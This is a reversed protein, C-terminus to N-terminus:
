LRYPYKHVTIADLAVQMAGILSAESGLSAKCISVPRFPYSDLVKRMLPQLLKTDADDIECIAGGIVVIEPNLVFMADAIALALHDIIEGQRAGDNRMADVSAVSELYGIKRNDRTLGKRETVFYGIEGAAGHSGRYLNGDIIIGAGIGRSINVFLMNKAGRGAGQKLEALAALNSINEVFVPVKFKASVKGYFDSSAISDYLSADVVAGTEPNVVAPVGIGIALVTAGPKAFKRRFTRMSQMIASGLQDSFDAGPEFPSAVYTAYLKGGFDSIAIKVPDALLDVGVIYGYDANISIQAAKKGTKVPVRVSENVYSEKLLNDIARSVAPASIGLERAMQARYATGHDRLYNFIISTNILNQMESNACVPVILSKQPSVRSKGVTM